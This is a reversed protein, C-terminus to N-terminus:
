HPLDRRLSARTKGGRQKPRTAWQETLLNYSLADPTDLLFGAIVALNDEDLGLSPDVRMLVGPRHQTIKRGTISCLGGQRDLVEHYTEVPAVTNIAGYVKRTTAM